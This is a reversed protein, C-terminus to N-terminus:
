GLTPSILLDGWPLIKIPGCLGKVFYALKQEWAPKPCFLVMKLSINEHISPWHKRNFIEVEGRPPAWFHLASILEWYGGVIKLRFFFANNKYFLIKVSSFNTLSFNGTASNM